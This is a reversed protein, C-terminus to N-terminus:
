LKKMMWYVDAYTGDKYKMNNPLRGFIEFGMKEYLSIARQNDAVVELEIQEFGHEKAINCVREIMIKGLGKGTYKQYLAIGLGVRHQYRIPDNGMLSCNGVHEGDLFGVLMMSSESDNQNQIFRCEDEHTLTIEEPEKVLFRTQANVTKLYAILLDADEEKPNRLLFEHGNLDITIDEVRM